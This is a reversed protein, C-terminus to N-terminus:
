IKMNDMTLVDMEKGQADVVDSLDMLAEEATNQNMGLAKLNALVAEFAESREKAAQDTEEKFDIDRKNKMEELEEQRRLQEM